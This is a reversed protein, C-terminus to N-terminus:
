WTASPEREAPAKPWKIPVTIRVRPHAWAALPRSRRPAATPSATPVFGRLEVKSPKGSVVRMYIGDLLAELTERSRNDSAMSPMDNPSTHGELARLAHEAALERDKSGASVWGREAALLEALPHQLEDGVM